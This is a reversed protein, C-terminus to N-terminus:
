ALEVYTLGAPLVVIILFLLTVGSTRALIELRRALRRQSPAEACLEIKTRNM